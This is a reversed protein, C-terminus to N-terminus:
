RRGGGFGRGLEGGEDVMVRVMLPISAKIKARVRVLGGSLKRDVVEAATKWRVTVRRMMAKGAQQDQGAQQQQGASGRGGDLHQGQGNESLQNSEMVIALEGKDKSSGTGSWEM